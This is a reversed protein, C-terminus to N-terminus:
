GSYNYFVFQEQGVYVVLKNGKIKDVDKNDFLYEITGDRHHISADALNIDVEDYEPATTHSPNVLRKVDVGLEVLQSENSMYSKDDDSKDDDNVMNRKRSYSGDKDQKAKAPEAQKAKKPMTTIVAQFHQNSSAKLKNLQKM